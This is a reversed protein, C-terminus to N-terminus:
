PVELSTIPSGVAVQDSERVDLSLVGYVDDIHYRFVGDTNYVRLYPGAADYELHTPAASLNLTEITVSQSPDSPKLTELKISSGQASYIFRNRVRMTAMTGPGSEYDSLDPEPSWTGSFSGLSDIQQTAHGIGDIYYHLLNSIVGIQTLSQNTALLKLEKDVKSGDPLVWRTQVQGPGAGSGNVIEFEMKFSFPMVSLNLPTDFESDTTEAVISFDTPALPANPTGSIACTVPDLSLGLSTFLAANTGLRCEVISTSPTLQNEVHLSGFGFVTQRGPANAYSLVTNEPTHSPLSGSGGGGGGSCAALTFCFIMIM